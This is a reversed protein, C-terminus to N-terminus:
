SGARALGPWVPVHGGILAVRSDRRAEETPEWNWDCRAWRLAALMHRALKGYRALKKPQQQGSVLRKDAEAGLISACAGDSVHCHGMKNIQRERHAQRVATGSCPHRSLGPVFPAQRVANRCPGAERGKKVWSESRSTVCNGAVGAGTWPPVRRGERPPARARRGGAPRRPAAPAFIFRFGGSRGPSGSRPSAVGAGCALWAAGWAASAAMGTASAAWGPKGAFGGVAVPWGGWSVSGLRGAPAAPAGGPESEM